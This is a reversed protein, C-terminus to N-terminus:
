NSTLGHPFNQQLVWFTRLLLKEDNLWTKFGLQTPLQPSLAPNHTAQTDLIGQANHSVSATWTGPLHPQAPIVAYTTKSQHGLSHSPGEWGAESVGANLNFKEKLLM